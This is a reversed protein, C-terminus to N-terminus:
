REGRLYRNIQDPRGNLCDRVAMLIKGLYNEGKGNCVGWFTDGWTNGEILEEEGTSILSEGLDENCTFKEFVLEAMVRVKDQEWDSRMLVSRGRKKVEGATPAERVWQIHEPIYAKDAQFAHEVSPCPTGRLHVISYAFNSLFYYKGRFNDIAM